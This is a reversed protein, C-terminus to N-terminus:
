FGPILIPINHFHTVGQGLQGWGGHGMGMINNNGDVLIAFGDGLSIQTVHDVASVKTPVSKVGRWPPFRGVKKAKKNEM